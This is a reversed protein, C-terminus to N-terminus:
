LRSTRLLARGLHGDPDFVLRCSRDWWKTPLAGDSRGMLYDRRLLSFRASRAGDYHAIVATMEGHNQLLVSTVTGFCETWATDRLLPGPDSVVLLVDLTEQGWRGKRGGALAIAQVLKEARAWNKLSRGFDDLNEELGVSM